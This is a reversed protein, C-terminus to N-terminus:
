PSPTHRFATTTGEPKTVLAAGFARSEADFWGHFSMDPSDFAIAIMTGGCGATGPLTCQSPTPVTPPESPVEPVSPVDPVAPGGAICGQPGEQLIFPVFAPATPDSCIPRVTPATPQVPTPVDVISMAPDNRVGSNYTPTIVQFQKTYPNVLVTGAGGDDVFTLFNELTVVIDSLVKTSSGCFSSTKRDKATSRIRYQGNPQARSAWVTSWAGASGKSASFVSANDAIRTVTITGDARLGFLACIADETGGTDEVITVNGRVTAGNAPSTIKAHAPTGAFLALAGILTVLRKEM